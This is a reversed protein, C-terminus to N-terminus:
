RTSSSAAFRRKICTLRQGALGALTFRDGWPTRGQGRRKALDQDMEVRRRAAGRAEDGRAADRLLV